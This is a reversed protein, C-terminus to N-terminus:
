VDWQQGCTACEEYIENKTRQTGFEHDFSNNVLRFDHEITGLKTECLHRKVDDEDTQNALAQDIYEDLSLENHM